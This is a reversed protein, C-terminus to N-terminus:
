TYIYCIFDSCCEMCHFLFILSFTSYGCLLFRLSFSNLTDFFFAPLPYCGVHPAKTV